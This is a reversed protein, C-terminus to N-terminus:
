GEGSEKLEDALEANMDLIAVYGGRRCIDQACARGLGSAGDPRYLTSKRIAGSHM